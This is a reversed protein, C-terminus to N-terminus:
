HSLEKSAVESFPRELAGGPEAGEPYGEGAQLANKMDTGYIGVYDQGSIKQIALTIDDTMVRAAEYPGVKEVLDAYDAPYIPDAVIVKVKWPRVIWSGIPNVRGTGIFAVPCVVAGTELAIRATGTRGKYLRGDPSRTGEVALGLIKDDNLAVRGAALAASSPDEANRDVPVQGVATMFSKQLRGILGPTTFYESKALFALKRPCRAGIYFQDMVALHNTALIAPGEAPIRDRGIFSPRNWVMLFPGVTAYKFFGYWFKYM